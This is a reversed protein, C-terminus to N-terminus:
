ALERPGERRDDLDVRSGWHDPPPAPLGPEYQIEDEELDETVVMKGDPSFNFHAGPSRGLTARLRSPYRALQLASGFAGLLALLLLLLRGAAYRSM